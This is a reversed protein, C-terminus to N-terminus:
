TQGDTPAPRYSELKDPRIRTMTELLDQIEQRIAQERQGLERLRTWKDPEYLYCTERIVQGDPDKFHYQGSLAIIQVDHFRYAQWDTVEIARIPAGEKRIVARIAGLSARKVTKKHITAYFHGAVSVFIEVGQYDEVKMSSM